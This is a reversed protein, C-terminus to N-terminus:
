FATLLLAPILFLAASLLNSLMGCLHREEESLEDWSVIREDALDATSGTRRRDPFRRRLAGSSKARWPRDEWFAPRKWRRRSMIYM